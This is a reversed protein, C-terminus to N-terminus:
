SLDRLRQKARRVADQAVAREIRKNDANWQRETQRNPHGCQFPYVWKGCTGCFLQRLGAKHQTEAWEHWELYGEPAPDGVKFKPMVLLCVLRSRCM